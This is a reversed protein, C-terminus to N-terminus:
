LLARETKDIHSLDSKTQIRPDFITLDNLAHGKELRQKSLSGWSVMQLCVNKRLLRKTERPNKYTLVM